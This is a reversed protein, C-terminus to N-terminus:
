NYMEYKSIFTDQLSSRLITLAEAYTLEVYRQNILQNHNVCELHGRASGLVFGYIPRKDEKFIEKETSIFLYRKKTLMARWKIKGSLLFNYLTQFNFNRLQNKSSLSYCWFKYFVIYDHYLWPATSNALLTSFALKQTNIFKALNLPNYEAKCSLVVSDLNDIRAKKIYHLQSHHEITLKKCVPNITLYYDSRPKKKQLVIVEFQEHQASAIFCPEYMLESLLYYTIISSRTEDYAPLNRCENFLIHGDFKGLTNVDTALQATNFYTM